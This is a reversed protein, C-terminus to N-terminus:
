LDQTKPPILHELEPINDKPIDDEAVGNLRYSINKLKRMMDLRIMMFELDECSKADAKLTDLRKNYQLERLAKLKEAADNSVKKTEIFKRIFSNSLDSQKECYHNNADAVAGYAVAQTMLKPDISDQAFAFSPIFLFILLVRFM